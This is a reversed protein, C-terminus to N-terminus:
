TYGNVTGQFESLSLSLTHKNEQYGQNLSPRRGRLVCGRNNRLICVSLICRVIEFAGVAVGRARTHTAGRSRLLSFRWVPALFSNRTCDNGYTYARSDVKKEM